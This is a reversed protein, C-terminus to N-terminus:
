EKQDGALAIELYLEESLSRAISESSPAYTGNRIQEKLAEIKKAREDVMKSPNLESQLFAGLSSVKISDAKSQSSASHSQAQDGIGEATSRRASSQESARPKKNDVADSGPIKM